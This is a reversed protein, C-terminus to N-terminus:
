PIKKRIIDWTLLKLESRSYGFIKLLEYIAQRRPALDETDPFQRLYKLIKLYINNISM